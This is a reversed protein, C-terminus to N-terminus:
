SAKQRRADQVEYRVARGRKSKKVAGEKVLRSLRSNMSPTNTDTMMALPSAKINPDDALIALVRRDIEQSQAKTMRTRKGASNSRSAASRRRSSTRARGISPGKDERLAARAQELQRVEEVLPRLESLRKDIDKRISDLLDPM